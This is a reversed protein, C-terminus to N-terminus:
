EKIIKKTVMGDISYINILYLGKSLESINIEKKTINEIPVSMILRGNIDIVELKTLSLNNSASLNIVDNAPNPYLKISASLTDDLDNIGLLNESVTARTTLTDFKAIASVINSAGPLLTFDVEFPDIGDYAGTIAGYFGPGKWTIEGTTKNFAFGVRYWTDPSLIIESGGSGLNFFYLGIPNPGSGPDFYALGTIVKTEPVFRFGAITSYGSNYLRIGTTGISTTASGTFFDYEVEIIDNGPTRSPWATSLVGEQWAFHVDTDNAAGTIQLVKGQSGGENVIQFDSNQGGAGIVLTYWGNQGGTSGGIDTGLNGITLADFNDSQLDQGIVIFNASILTLLLLTIRKM